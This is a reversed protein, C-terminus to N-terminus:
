QAAVTLDPFYQKQQSSLQKNIGNLKSNIEGITLDIKEVEKTLRSINSNVAEFEKFEAAAITRDASAPIVSIEKDVSIKQTEMGASPPTNEPFKILSEAAPIVYETKQPPRIKDLFEDVSSKISFQRTVGPPTVASAYQTGSDIRVPAIDVLIDKSEQKGSQRINGKVKVSFKAKELDAGRLRLNWFAKTIGKPDLKTIVKKLTDNEPDALTVGPPLELTVEISNLPYEGSKNEIDCSVTFPMSGRVREPCGLAVSIVDGIKITPKYVGYTVAYKREQGPCFVVPDWYIACASDLWGLFVKFERGHKLKSDWSSATLRRWNSFVVEDPEPYGPVRLMSMASVTPKSISDVVYWYDPIQSGRLSIDTTVTGVGPVGFPAGDNDGLYTDLLIRLGVTHPKFDLNTVTYEIQLTDNNDTTPGRVISIKQEVKVKDEGIQSSAISNSDIVTEKFNEGFDSGFVYAKGDIKVTAYSTERYGEAHYLLKRNNDSNSEPNGGTTYLWFMSTNRNYVVSIFENSKELYEASAPGATLFFVPTSIICFLLHLFIKNQKKLNKKM